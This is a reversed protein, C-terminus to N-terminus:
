EMRWDPLPVDIRALKRLRALQRKRRERRGADTRHRQWWARCRPCTRRSHGAHTPGDLCASGLPGSMGGIPQEGAGQGQPGSASLRPGAQQSLGQLGGQAWGQHPARGRLRVAAQRRPLSQMAEDHSLRTHETATGTLMAQVSIESKKERKCERSFDSVYAGMDVPRAVRRRITLSAPPTLAKAVLSPMLRSITYRQSRVPNTGRGLTDRTILALSPATVARSRRGSM